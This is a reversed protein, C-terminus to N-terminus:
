KYSFIVGDVEKWIGSGQEFEAQYVVNEPAISGYKLLSESVEDCRADPPKNINGDDICAYQLTPETQYIVEQMTDPFDKDKMRNLVVSGVYYLCEESKVGGAEAYILHALLEREEENVPAPELPEVIYQQVQRSIGACTEVDPQVPAVEEIRILEITQPRCQNEIGLRVCITFFLIAAIMYTAALIDKQKRTM